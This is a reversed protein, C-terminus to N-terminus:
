AMEALLAGALKVQGQAIIGVPRGTFHYGIFPTNKSRSVIDAETFIWDHDPLFLSLEAEANETIHPVPLGFAARPGQCFREVLKRTSLRGKLATSAVAFATELGIIGCAAQPFELKKHETDEPRHDSTITDITGDKVGDRLAEIHPMDRLPPMVKYNTDFGRLCGDDLLLNHAAVSASVRSKKAKAQRILEVSEATSVTAVHMRSGTYELLALDRALQVAEAMAPIGRMGLRVNMHGEHMQGHAGLDQDLPFTIVRGEFNLAYQLALLMLRTNRVPHQDDCIAIAGAQKMDFHEALQQGKLGKSLAGLPLVRVAHGEAKRSLYEIGARSDMVPETSPLVAVRTFGGAAAADLGNLIGQKYEEGPDRFHARTEVWGPSVHLGEMRIEQAETKPLRKGIRTIKGDSILLDLTEDHHPGGPDVVTVQRLLLTNM